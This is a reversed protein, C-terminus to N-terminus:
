GNKRPALFRRRKNANSHVWKHCENCLTVLNSMETRLEPAEAWTAIHHAHLAHRGHDQHHKCRKCRFGDRQYVAQVLAKWEHTKYLRQREPTTGGKWSPNNKGKSKGSLRLSESQTRPRIGFKRMFNSVTSRKVGFEAAIDDITRKNVEYEHRLWAEDKYPFWGRYHDRNVFRRFQGKTTSFTTLQGCGCACLPPDKMREALREEYSLKANEVVYPGRPAKPDWDKDLPVGRKQRGYHKNCLGLSVVTQGCGDVSCVAGTKALRQKRAQTYHTNCLGTAVAPRSCGDASCPKAGNRFAAADRKATEKKRDETLPVNNRWRAYHMSCMGRAHVSKKCNKVKCIASSKSQGSTTKV